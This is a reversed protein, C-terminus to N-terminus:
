LTQAIAYPLSCEQPSRKPQQEPRQQGFESGNVEMLRSRGAQQDARNEAELRAKELIDNIFGNVERMKEEDNKFQDIRQELPQNLDLHLESM